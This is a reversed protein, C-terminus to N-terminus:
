SSNARVVKSAPWYLVSGSSMLADMVCRMRGVRNASPVAEVRNEVGGMIERRRPSSSALVITPLFGKHTVGARREARASRSRAGPTPNPTRHRM